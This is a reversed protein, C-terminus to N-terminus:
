QVKVRRFLEIAEEYAEIKPLFEDADTVLLDLGESEIKAEMRDVKRQLRDIVDQVTLKKPM